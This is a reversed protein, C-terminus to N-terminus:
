KRTYTVTNPSVGFTIQSSTYTGDAQQAGAGIKGVYRPCDKAPTNYTLRVKGVGTAQLTAQTKFSMEPCDVVVYDLPGQWKGAAVRSLTMTFRLNGLFPASYTAHWTGSLDVDQAGPPTKAPPLTTPPTKAPPLTTTTTPTVGATTPPKPGPGGGPIPPRYPGRVGPRQPPGILPPLPYPPAVPGAPGTTPPPVSTGGVVTSGTGGLGGPASPGSPGSPGGAPGGGGTPTEPSPPKVETGLPGGTGPQNPEQSPDLPNYGGGAGQGGSSKGSDDKELVTVTAIDSAGELSAAVMFSGAREGRLNPGGKWAATGTLDVYKGPNDSYEGTARCSASEGVVITTPQCSVGFRTLTRAAPGTPGPPEPEPPTPKTPDTPDTTTPGTPGSPSTPTTATTVGCGYENRFYTSLQAIRSDAEGSTMNSGVLEYTPPGYRGCKAAAFHFCAPPDGFLKYRWVCYEGGSGTTVTAPPRIGPGSSPLQGKALVAVNLNLSVEGAGRQRVRITVGTTGPPANEKARFTESFTYSGGADLKIGPNYMNGPVTSTSGPSIEIGSSKEPWVVEVEVAEASNSNWGRVVIGCNRGDFAGPALEFSGGCDLEARLAGPPAAPESPKTPATATTVGCGYENKFYTSLQSIRSDAEGSAMNSGVLEYAPDTYKGCKAAAFHFCLPPDGFLKYRWVCYEGGSGTAVTAPPRIGPGSSPLLGKKLVAVTLKLTVEGAGQQRVTITISTTGPPANDRARITESFVYRDYYDSVGATHMNGPDQSTSGPSVELGSREPPSSIEVQVRDRTNSRWGRVVIGCGRGAFDGPALEFSDGCDLEARLAAAPVAPGATGAGTGGGAQAGGEGPAAASREVVTVDAKATKGGYSASVTFFGTQKANFVPLGSGSPYWTSGSSETLPKTEDNSYVGIVEFRQSEGVKLTKSAPEIRLSVLKGSPADPESVFFVTSGKEGQKTPYDGSDKEGPKALYAGSDEVDVLVSYTGPASFKLTTRYPLQNAELTATIDEFAGVASSIRLNYPPTGGSVGVAFPIDKNAKVDQDKPLALKLYAPGERTGAKELQAASWQNNDRCAQQDDVNKVLVGKGKDDDKTKSTLADLEARIQALKQKMPRLVQTEEEKIKLKDLAKGVFIEKTLWVLGLTPGLTYIMMGKGTLDLVQAWYEKLQQCDQAGVHRCIANQAEYNAVEQEKKAADLRTRIRNREERARELNDTAAWGVSAVSGVALTVTLILSILRLDLRPPRSKGQLFRLRILWALCPWMQTSVM